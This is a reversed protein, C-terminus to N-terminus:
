AATGSNRQRWRLAVVVGILVLTGATGAVLGAGAYWFADGDDGIPLSHSIPPAPPAGDLTLHMGRHRGESWLVSELAAHDGIRIDIQADAEGCGDHVLAPQIVLGAYEDYGGLFQPSGPSFDGSGCLQGAIYAQVLPREEFLPARFVYGDIVMPKPGIFIDFGLGPEPWADAEDALRGDVRWVIERDSDGCDPIEDGGIVEAQYHLRHMAGDSPFTFTTAFSTCDVGDVLAEIQADNDELWFGDVFVALLYRERGVQAASSASVDIAAAAVVTLLLAAFAYAFLHPRPM